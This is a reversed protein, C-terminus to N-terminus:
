QNVALIVIWTGPEAIELDVEQGDVSLTARFPFVVDMLKKTSGRKTSAGDMVMGYSGKAININSITAAPYTVGSFNTIGGTVNSITLEISNDKSNANKRIDIRSFYNSKYHITFPKEPKVYTGAYIDKKWVGNVVSDSKGERKYAMSGLGERVGQVWLGIFVNGNKWKYTGKGDPLGAKFQGQYQDTGEAKGSGDAKGQKCGGTYKGAIAPLLVQCDQGQVNKDCFSLVIVILLFNIFKM